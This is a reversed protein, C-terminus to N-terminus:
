LREILWEKFLGVKMRYRGARPQSLVDRLCLDALIREVPATTEAGVIRETPCDEQNRSERAVIRLVALADDKSIADPSPDGSWLLNDFYNQELRQEKEDSSAASIAQQKVHEVYVDTALVARHRNMYTVLRHCLGQLFYPNGDTLEILRDIAAEGAAGQFRSQGPRQSDDAPIRIPDEILKRADVPALYGVRRPESVQFENSYRDRFKPMYDQGVVICSFYSRERLAKWARMFTEPLDGSLIFGYLYTFEDLLLVVKPRQEPPLPRVRTRLAIFFGDLASQPRERFADFPVEPLQGAIDCTQEIGALATHVRRVLEYMFVALSDNKRMDELLEGVSYRVPVYPYSLESELQYLISSKGSRMQGYIVHSIQVPSSTLLAVIERIYEDRGFLMHREMVPQGGAYNRYPSDFPRYSSAPYLPVSLRNELVVDTGSRTSFRLAYYLTFVEARGAEETVRVPVEATISSGGRLSERLVVPGGEVHYEGTPSPLATITVASAPSKGRANTLNVQCAVVAKENPYYEDTALTVSIDPEAATQVQQFHEDLFERLALVYLRFQELSIRTPGDEIQRVLEEARAQAIKHANEQESYETQRSYHVIQEVIERVEGARQWDLGGEPLQARIGDLRALQDELLDFTLAGTQLARLETVVKLLDARAKARGLDWLKALEEKTTVRDMQEPPVGLFEQCRRVVKDILEPGRDHVVKEILYNTLYVNL